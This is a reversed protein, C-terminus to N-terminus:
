KRYELGVGVFGPSIVPAVSLNKFHWESQDVASAALYAMWWGLLVQSTYHDDDNIRSLGPLTSAVYFGIKWFCNDTMKAASLFPVAGMFSHGSVGNADQFPHWHSGSGTEGPRSGGTIQQMALMPPAGVIFTRLSRQGWEGVAGGITTEQFWSGALAAVAAAPILITGDGLLKPAHIAEFAEDTRMERVDEQYNRRIVEDADTNALAAAVGTGAALLGLNRLSYYHRHDQLVRALFGHLGTESGMASPPLEGPEVAPSFEMADLASPPAAEALPGAESTMSSWSEQPEIPPLRMVRPDM